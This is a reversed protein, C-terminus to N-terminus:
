GALLVVGSWALLAVGAVRALLLGPPALKELVLLATMAAMWGAGMGGAALPALMLLGCSGLSIAGHRLGALLAGAGARGPPELRARCRELCARKAPTLQFLGVAALLAAGAIPSEITGAPGVITGRELAWQALAAAASFAAWAALLGAFFTAARAPTARAGGRLPSLLAPLEPPVMMAVMMATWMAFLALVGPGEPPAGPHVHAGHAHAASGHPSGATLALAGIWVLAIGGALLVATWRGRRPGHELALVSM